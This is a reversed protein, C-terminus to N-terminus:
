MCMFSRDSSCAICCLCSRFTFSLFMCLQHYTHATLQKLKRSNVHFMLGLRAVITKDGLRELQVNSAKTTTMKAGVFHKNYSVFQKRAWPSLMQAQILLLEPSEVLTFSTMISYRFVRWPPRIHAENPTFRRRWGGKSAAPFMERYHQSDRM